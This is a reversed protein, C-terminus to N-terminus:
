DVKNKILEHKINILDTIMNNSSYLIFMNNNSFFTKAHEYNNFPNIDFSTTITVHYNQKFHDKVFIVSLNNQAYGYYVKELNLCQELTLEISWSYGVATTGLETKKFSINM